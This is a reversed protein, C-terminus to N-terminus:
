VTGTVLFCNLHQTGNNVNLTIVKEVAHGVDRHIHHALSETAPDAPFAPGILAQFAAAKSSRETTM